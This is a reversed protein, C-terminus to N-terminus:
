FMFFFKLKFFQSNRSVNILKTNVFFVIIVKLTGRTYISSVPYKKHSFVWRTEQERNEWDSSISNIPSTLCESVLITEQHTVTIKTWNYM